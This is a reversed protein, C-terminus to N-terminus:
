RHYRFMMFKSRNQTESVEPVFFNCIEILNSELPIEDDKIRKINASITRSTGLHGRWWHQRFFVSKLM